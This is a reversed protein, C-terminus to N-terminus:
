KCIECQDGKFGIQCICTYVSGKKICVGGNRCPQKNCVDFVNCHNDIYGIPCICTYDNGVNLCTGSNM